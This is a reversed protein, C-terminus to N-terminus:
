TVPHHVVIGGSGAMGNRPTQGLSVFIHTWVSVQEWLFRSAGLVHTMIVGLHSCGSQGDAALPCVAPFGGHGPTDGLGSM